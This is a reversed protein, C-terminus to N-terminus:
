LISNMNYYFKKLLVKGISNTKGPVQHYEMYGVNETVASSFM